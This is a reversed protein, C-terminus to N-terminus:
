QERNGNNLPPQGKLHNDPNESMKLVICIIIIDRSFHRVLVAANAFSIHILYHSNLELTRGQMKVSFSKIKTMLIISHLRSFSYVSTFHIDYCAFVQVVILYVNYLYKLECLRNFFMLIKQCTQTM